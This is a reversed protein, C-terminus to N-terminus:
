RRQQEQKQQQDAAAAGSSAAAPGSSAGRRRKESGEVGNVSYSQNEDHEVTEWADELEIVYDKGTWFHEILCCMRAAGALWRGPAEFGGIRVWRVGEDFVMRTRYINGTGCGGAVPTLVLDILPLPVEVVAAHLADAMRESFGTGCAADFPAPTDSGYSWTAVRDGPPCAKAAATMGHVAAVRDPQLNCNQVTCPDKGAYGCVVEHIREMGAAYGTGRGRRGTAAAARAQEVLWTSKALREDEPVKKLTEYLDGDANIPVGAM